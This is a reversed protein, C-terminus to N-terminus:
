GEGRPRWSFSVKAGLRRTDTQGYDAPTFTPRVRVQVRFPPPPVDLAFRRKSGSPVVGERAAEVRRLRVTGNPGRVPRGLEIRVSGNPVGFPVGERSVDVIMRGPRRLRSWYQSYAAKGRAWGDPEVGEILSAVRLPLALRYLALLSPQTVVTGALQYDGDIVAYRSPEPSGTSRIRGNVPDISTDLGPFSAAPAFFNYVTSLQENWFESQWLVHPDANIEPTYLFAATEGDPVAHDIWAPDAGTAYAHRTATSQAKAAGEVSKSSGLLFGLVAVPIAAVAIRRPVAAFLVGAVLVGGGLLIRVDNAGGDLLTTLRWLPILAFTSTILSINFLSEFPVTLLLAAPVVVAVTTLTSPRPLGRALWVVLALLLLPELYLMNREEVRISFRSAYLGVQVVIWAVAAVTVALFARQAPTFGADRGAALGVLVILAFAPILGVAYGLEAAHVVAWRAAERPVYDVETVGAYNRLGSSLSQGQVEKYLVYAVAAGTLLVPTLAYRRLERVVNERSVSGGGARLDFFVKLLIATLVIPVFVLAQLRVAVALFIAALAFLQRLITPRELALAIAFAALLFAPLAASETMVVGTYVFAPLALFLAAAVLAWGASTLRRAWLFVPLVGLTMLVVNIAKAISYTTGMSDALWAPAILAPYLGTLGSPEERFLFEGGAAFSKALESYHLEDGMIWPAVNRRTLWLRVVLAM